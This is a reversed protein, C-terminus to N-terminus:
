QVGNHFISLIIMELILSIHISKIIVIQPILTQMQSIFYRSVILSDGARIELVRNRVYIEDPVQEHVLERLQQASILYCEEFPMGFTLTISVKSFKTSFISHRELFLM